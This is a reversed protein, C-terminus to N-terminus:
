PSPGKEFLTPSVSDSVEIAYVAGSADTVELLSGPVIGITKLSSGFLEPTDESLSTYVEVPVSAEHAEGIRRDWPGGCTKCCPRSFLAWEPQNIELPNLCEACPASVVFRHPLIVSPAEFCASLQGVLEAALADCDVPIACLTEPWVHRGQCLEDLTLRVSTTKASRVNGYVRRDIIERNNHGVQIVAEAMLAGLASAAPQTAPVFGSQEAETARATCSLRLHDVAKIQQHCLWCPGHSDNSLACFSIDAGDFGGEVLPRKHKRAMAGIYARVANSDVASVVVTADKFPADGFQQIPGDLHSVKPSKSWSVLRRLKKAVAAAKSDGWRRRESPSPFCPSRTANHPEFRDFDVLCLHGVQCLALNLGINQGLAGAGILLMRMEALRHPDYGAAIERSMCNNMTMLTVEPNSLRRLLM